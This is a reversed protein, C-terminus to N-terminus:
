PRSERRKGSKGSKHLLIEKVSCNDGNTLVVRIGPGFSIHKVQDENVTVVEGDLKTVQM